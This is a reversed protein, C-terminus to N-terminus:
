SSIFHDNPNFFQDEPLTRADRIFRNFVKEANASSWARGGFSLLKRENLHDRILDWKGRSHRYHEYAVALEQLALERRKAGESESRARWMAFHRAPDFLEGCVEVPDPPVPMCLEEDALIPDLFQHARWGDTEKFNVFLIQASHRHAAAVVTTNFEDAFEKSATHSSIEMFAFEDFIKGGQETNYKALRAIQYRITASKEYADAIGAFGHRFGAWFVPRTWYFAVFRKSLTPRRLRDPCNLRTREPAWFRAFVLGVRQRM